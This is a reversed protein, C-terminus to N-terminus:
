LPLLWPLDTTSNKIVKLNNWIKETSITNIIVFVHNKKKKILKEEKLYNM